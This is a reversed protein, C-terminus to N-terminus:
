RCLSRREPATATATVATAGVEPLNERDIPFASQRENELPRVLFAGQAGQVVGFTVRGEWGFAAGRAAQVAAGLDAYEKAWSKPDPLYPLAQM